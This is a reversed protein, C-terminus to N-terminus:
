ASADPCQSVKDRCLWGGRCAVCCRYVGGLLWYAFRMDKQYAVYQEEECKVIYSQTEELVTHIQQSVPGYLSIFADQDLSPQKKISEIQQMLLTKYKKVQHSVKQDM